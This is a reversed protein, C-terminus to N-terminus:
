KNCRIAFYNLSNEVLEGIEGGVYSGPRGASRDSPRLRIKATNKGWLDIDPGLTFTMYKHGPCNWVQKNGNLSFDPVTFTDAAKWTQVSEDYYEMVWNTPGSIREGYGNIIGFQVSMPANAATYNKTSFTVEWATEEYIWNKCSWASGYDKDIRGETTANKEKTASVFWYALTGNDDTVGNGGAVSTLKGDKYPGLMTWDRKTDITAKVKNGKSDLADPVVERLSASPAVTSPYYLIKETSYNSIIKDGNYCYRFECILESFGNSFDPDLKIDSKRVPRIQYRGIEGLDNVYDLGLGGAVIQEAKEQDWEFNDCHEHVLIGTISGSGQPMVCDRHWSCTTNVVMHMDNGDVDRIVMPYKNMVCYHKLNIGIYPGKRIPIECDTLEVLTYIDSDTLESMKRTKVRVDSESGIENKLIASGPIGTVVYREPESEKTLVAGYLDVDIHDFRRVLLESGKTFELKVDMSGEADSVYLTRDALTLDQLTSTINRNEAGNGELNDNIVILGSLRVHGTIEVRSETETMAKLDSLSTEMYGTGVAAQSVQIKGSMSTGKKSVTIVAHRVNESLNEAVNFKLYNNEMRTQTIWQGQEQEVYQTEILIDDPSSMTLVKASLFGGEAGISLNQHAIYFDESLIGIQSVEIEVERHLRKLIIKGSRMITRNADVYVALSEDAATGTYSSQGGEFHMWEEGEAVVAQYEGDSVIEIRFEAPRYSLPMGYEEYVRAGFEVIEVEALRDTCSLAMLCMLLIIYRKM